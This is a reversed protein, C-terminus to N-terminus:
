VVKRTEEGPSRPLAREFIFELQSRLRRVGAILPLVRDSNDCKRLYDLAEKMHGDARRMKDLDNTHHQKQLSKKM